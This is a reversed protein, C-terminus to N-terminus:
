IVLRLCVCALRSSPKIRYSLTINFIFIVKLINNKTEILQNIYVVNYCYIVELMYLIIFATNFM